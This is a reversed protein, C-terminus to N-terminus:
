TLMVLVEWRCSSRARVAGLFPQSENNGLGRRPSHLLLPLILRHPVSPALDIANLIRFNTFKVPQTPHSFAISKQIVGKSEQGIKERCYPQYSYRVFLLEDFLSRDIPGRSRIGFSYNKCSFFGRRCISSLEAECQLEPTKWEPLM